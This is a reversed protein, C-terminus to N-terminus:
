RQGRAELRQDRTELLTFKTHSVVMTIGDASCTRWTAALVLTYVLVAWERYHSSRGAPSRTIRMMENGELYDEVRTSLLPYFNKQQLIRGSYARCNMDTRWNDNAKISIFDVHTM